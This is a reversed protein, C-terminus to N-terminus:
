SSKASQRINKTLIACIKVVLKKINSSKGNNKLTKAAQSLQKPYNTAM